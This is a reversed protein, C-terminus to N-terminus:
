DHTATIVVLCCMQVLGQGTAAGRKLLVMAFEMMSGM